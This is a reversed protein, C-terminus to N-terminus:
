GQRPSPPYTAGDYLPRGDPPEPLPVTVTTPPIPCATDYDGPPLEVTVTLVVRDAAVSLHPTWTAEPRLTCSGLAVALGDACTLEVVPGASSEGVPEAETSPPATPSAATGSETGCGGLAVVMGLAAARM